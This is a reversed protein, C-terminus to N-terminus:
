SGNIAKTLQRVHEISQAKAWDPMGSHSSNIEELLMVFKEAESIHMKIHIYEQKEIEM